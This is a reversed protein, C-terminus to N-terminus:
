DRLEQSFNETSSPSLCNNISSSEGSKWNACVVEVYGWILGVFDLDLFCNSLYKCQLRSFLKLIGKISILEKASM